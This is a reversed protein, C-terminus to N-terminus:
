ESLFKVTGSHQWKFLDYRSLNFEHLVDRLCRNLYSYDPKEDFGLQSISKIFDYMLGPFPEILKEPTFHHKVVGPLRKNKDYIQWPLSGNIMEYFCYFLSWLDDRRSLQQGIIHANPSAYRITGIFGHLPETPEILTDGNKDQYRRGLGFDILYVDNENKNREVAFNSGLTM